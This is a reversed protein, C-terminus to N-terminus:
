DSISSPSLNPDNHNWIREVVNHKRWLSRKTKTSWHNKSHPRHFEKLPKMLDFSDEYYYLRKTKKVTNVNAIIICFCHLPLSNHGQQCRLMFWAAAGFQVLIWQMEVLVSECPHLFGTEELFARSSTTFVICKILDWGKLVHRQLMAYSWISLVWLACISGSM